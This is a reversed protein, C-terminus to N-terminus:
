RHRRAGARDRGARLPRPHRVHGRLPRRWLRLRRGQWSAMFYGKGDATPVISTVEADLVGIDQLSGFYKADGFPFIGGNVTVLWYGGDDATPAIGSVVALSVVLDRVKTVMNGTSGRYPADGFAFVGGDDGVLWYGHGGPPSPPLTAPAPTLPPTGGPPTGGTTPRTPRLPRSCDHHRLPRTTTTTTTTTTTPAAGTVIPVAPFRNPLTAPAATPSTSRTRPRTM